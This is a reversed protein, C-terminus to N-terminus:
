SPKVGGGEALQQYQAQLQPAPGDTTGGVEYTFSGGAAAARQLM